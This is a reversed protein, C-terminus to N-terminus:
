IQGVISLGMWSLSFEQVISIIARPLKYIKLRLDVSIKEGSSSNDEYAGDYAWFTKLDKNYLLLAFPM